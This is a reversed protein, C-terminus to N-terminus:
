RKRKALLKTPPTCSLWRSQYMCQHIDKKQCSIGFIDSFLYAIVVSYPLNPLMFLSGLLDLIYTPHFLLKCALQLIEFSAMM